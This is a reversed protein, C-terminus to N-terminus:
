CDVVEKTYGAIIKRQMKKEEITNLRNDKAGEKVVNKLRRWTEKWDKCREEDMEIYVKEFKVEKGYELLIEMVVKKLSTKRM